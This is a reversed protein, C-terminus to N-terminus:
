VFWFIDMYYNGFSRYLEAKKYPVANFTLFASDFYIKSIMRSHNREAAAKAFYITHLDILGSSSKYKNILVLASDAYPVGYLPMAHFHHYKSYNRYIEANYIKPFDKDKSLVMAASDTYYKYNEINQTLYHLEAYLMYKQYSLFSNNTSKLGVLYQNAM